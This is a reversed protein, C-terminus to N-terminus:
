GTLGLTLGRELPLCKPNEKEVRTARLCSSDNTARDLICHGMNTKNSRLSGFDYYVVSNVELNDM